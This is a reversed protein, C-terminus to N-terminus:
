SGYLEGRQKFPFEHHAPNCGNDTCTQKDPGRLSLADAPRFDDDVLNFAIEGAFDHGDKLAVGDISILAHLGRWVAVGFQM